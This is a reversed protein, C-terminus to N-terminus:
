KVEVIYNYDSGITDLNDLMVKHMHKLTDMPVNHINRNMHFDVSENPKFTFSIIKYGCEKGYEVYERYLSPKYNTNDVIIMGKGEDVYKCFQEYNCQHYYGLKERDFKYENTVKDIHYSDTSCIFAGMSAFIQALTSKGSGPIGRMIIVTKDM